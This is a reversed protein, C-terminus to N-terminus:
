FLKITNKFTDLNVDKIPKPKERGEIDEKKVDRRFNYPRTKDKIYQEVIQIMNDVSNRDRNICGKRNNEMKYTLISHMKRPYGTKDKLYMNECQTWTKSNLCSTRYEDISYIKFSDSLRDKLRKNPTSIIGRMQKGISWDGYIITVDKKFKTSIDKILDTEARKQNIHAYWKYKRFVDAQYMKLLRKNLENKKAIYKEFVKYLCSKSNYSTLEQEIETIKTKEKYNTILSQYKLRKTRKLHCKNTYRLVDGKKNKM